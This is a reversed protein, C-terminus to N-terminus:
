QVVQMMNLIIIMFEIISIFASVSIYVWISMKVSVLSYILMELSSYFQISLSNDSFIGSCFCLSITFLTRVWFLLYM